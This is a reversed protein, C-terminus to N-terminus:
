RAPWVAAEVLQFNVYRGPPRGQSWDEGAKERLTTLSWHEVGKPLALTRQQSCASMHIPQSKHGSQGLFCVDSLRDRFTRLLGSVPM